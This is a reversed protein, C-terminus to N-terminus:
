WLGNVYSQIDGLVTRKARYHWLYGLHLKSMILYRKQLLLIIEINKLKQEATAYEAAKAINEENAAERKGKFWYSLSLWRTYYSTTCLAAITLLNYRLIRCEHTCCSTREQKWWTLSKDNGCKEKSSCSRCSYHLAFPIAKCATAIPGFNLQQWPNSHAPMVLENTFYEGHRFM